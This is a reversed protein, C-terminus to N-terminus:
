FTQSDTGAWENNVNIPFGTQSFEKCGNQFLDGTYQSVRNVTMPIDNWNMECVANGYVDLARVSMKMVDKGRQPFTYLEFTHMTPDVDITETQKTNVCGYGSIVDLTASGNSYDFELKRVQSPIDETLNLRFMAVSRSLDVQFDNEGSTVDIAAFYHFTDQVKPQSKNNSVYRISFTNFSNNAKTATLSPNGDGGTQGVVAIYHRGVSLNLSILGFLSDTSNQIVSEEKVADEDMSSFVAFSLKTCVDNVSAKTIATGFPIQEISSVRIRVPVKDSSVPEDVEHIRDQCSAALFPVLAFAMWACLSCERTKKRASSQRMTKQKM